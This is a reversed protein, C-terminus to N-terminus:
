IGMDQWHQDLRNKFVNVSKADVIKEDNVFMSLMYSNNKRIRESRNAVYLYIM